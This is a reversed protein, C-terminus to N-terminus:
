HEVAYKLAFQVFKITETYRKNNFTTKLTNVILHAFYIFRKTNIIEINQFHNIEILHLQFALILM